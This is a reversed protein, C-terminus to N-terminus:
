TDGNAATLPHPLIRRLSAFDNICRSAFVYFGLTCTYLSRIYLSCIIMGNKPLPIPFSISRVYPCSFSTFFVVVFERYRRRDTMSFM